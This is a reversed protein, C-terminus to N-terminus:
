GGIMVATLNVYSLTITPSGASETRYKLAITQGVAINLIATGSLSDDNDALTVIIESMGEDGPAADNISIGVEFIKSPSIYQGTTMTTYNILYTGTKEVTLTGSGDHTILNLGGSGTVFNAHTVPYWTNQVASVQTIATRCV